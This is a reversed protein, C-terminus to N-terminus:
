FAAFLYPACRGFLERLQEAAELSVRGLGRVVVDEPDLVGYVLGSLGAVTLTAWPEVTRDRVVDLRGDMGDLLYRGALFEDDVVEVAVRGPGTAMGVLGDLSLVRAMPAPSGPFSIRAETVAALDTAWLEPTEGAAVTAVVRSVQDVHRAFFQLLLARSLPSTTLLDDAVLDGGYGAIRYTVAGVVEGDVRAMALWRDDLDHLQVARFDPLVAFGHRRYLLQQTFGRYAEYGKGVLERTIKGPLDVRLLGDLDAPSLMVTRAKPLGVYGFRQYFSPRFPYLSSVPHGQDRMLSLIEVVLARAYGRRRVLPDSALGAIGAMPYVTGRVNQRMSIASVDAMVVGDDEAVLTVNGEYYRHTDRLRALEAPAAPSPQFAYTQLPLSLTVREGDSIQRIKMDGM